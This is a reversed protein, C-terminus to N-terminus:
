RRLPFTFKQATVDEDIKEIFKSSKDVGTTVIKDTRSTTLQQGSNKLKKSIMIYSSKKKRWIM